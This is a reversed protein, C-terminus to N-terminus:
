GGVATNIQTEDAMAGAWVRVDSVAGPLYHGWGTGDPGEGVAFDGTAVVPAFAQDGGTQEGGVYLRAVKDQADFVGTIQVPTDM